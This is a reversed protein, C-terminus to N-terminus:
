DAADPRKGNNSTRGAWTRRVNRAPWELRRVAGSDLGRLGHRQANERLWPRVARAIKGVKRVAKCDYSADACNLKGEKKKCLSFTKANKKM